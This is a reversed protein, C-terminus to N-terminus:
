DWGTEDWWEAIWVGKTTAADKYGQTKSEMELGQGAWWYEGYAASLTDWVADAPALHPPLVAVVSRTWKMWEGVSLGHKQCQIPANWLITMMELFCFLCFFAVVVLLCFFHLFFLLLVLFCFVRYYLDTSFDALLHEVYITMPECIETFNHQHTVNWSNETLSWQCLFSWPMSFNTMWCTDVKFLSVVKAANDPLIIGFM